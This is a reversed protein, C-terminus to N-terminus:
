VVMEGHVNKHITSFIFDNALNMDGSCVIRYSQRANLCKMLKGLLAFIMGM